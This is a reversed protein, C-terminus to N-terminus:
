TQRAVQHGAAVRRDWVAEHHFHTTAGDHLKRQKPHGVHHKITESDHVHGGDNV